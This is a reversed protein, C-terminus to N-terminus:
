DTMSSRDAVRVYRMALAPLVLLNLLTSSLLGGLVTVAMPGEIELGPRNLGFALPALGLATVAATMLIPVLRENAGRVVLEINWTCGEVEVLHEYHALQLIANRASVGFVTVLGVVTGLSIGLGTAAIALVSGIVSFPINALVLWSNVRWHFSIFLIMVILALALGSYLMLENRTKIEADAAGTFELFVGVPLAVSKLIAQRAQGVVSQLSGSGVNFTVAVLRQGGDHEISYRNQTVEVNAVQALPVPGLPSAIMLGQLQTPQHRQSDPLLVVVDVTRTGQFTQGVKAGAYATEITDLVEQVKLGAAALAQPMIHFSIAPTGSQRKFQLDVIGSVKGLTAVVKDASRELADMDTGFIKIAVQATQGSLSESIRDGLFTVVESQLGPYHRLIDRLQEQAQEQDIRADAKLEVHFESRHPGWTDEGLEARGVQQEVSQVYPLALVEESIRKGVSLMEDLSTGPVSSTVQMVFHGERFDPMFTGGLFPMAAAAAVVLVLLVIMTAKIHGGVKRVAAGQWIKLRALWRAQPRSDHRRLFLACLAPTATMAVILSATVAFIFALALPGVFRGQVSSTFLEPLFVAIVVATAYIVPGRVELSADLVIKLRPQPEALQGNERLRRLINEIGIIADDVLVGLAVAFGGLTMTNLTLGMYRLVAVAALLSLPIATFAILAARIDRLFLYLVALILLVAIILSEKLNQLAREIFNAPRHLASYLTIGQKKLAPELDALVKEIALTVQLTNAGYQSSLSLMVGRKAMVLADGSRLAPAFKIEAVDRLLIPTGNRVGVVAQGLSNTDPEPTPSQLLVRQAALDIFGAGRLPLAAKAADAVESFSLGFSSLKRTDPLVQIQRVDGGFVIVRAVGPVALLRPKIIWDANDRLAYADVKDSVLGIKLLDMTSSVLPSLKPTGVGAPLSSGLESLRESVGQRAVHVDVGDRFTINVVSLGPISESRLTALGASGNVANEVQKTVLEEVQQPAFGPAETQIDVQSPVFEPFVDLPAQLAGWSGLILALLTLASIAGYHRVSLAVLARIM